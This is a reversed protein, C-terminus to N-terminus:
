RRQRTWYYISWTVDVDVALYDGLRGECRPCPTRDSYMEKIKSVQAGEARLKDIQEIIFDESHKSVGDSMAKLNNRAM